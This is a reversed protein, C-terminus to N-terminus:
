ERNGSHVKPAPARQTGRGPQHVVHKARMERNVRAAGSPPSSHSHQKRASKAIKAERPAAFVPPKIAVAAEAPPPVAVEPESPQKTPKSPITTWSDDLEEDEKEEAKKPSRRKAEPRGRRSQRRGGVMQVARSPKSPRKKKAGGPSQEEGDVSEEVELAAFPNSYAPM